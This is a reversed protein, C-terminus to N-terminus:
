GRLAIADVEILAGLPLASVGVTTRAPRHAGVFREYITNVRAFQALDTMFITVKVVDSPSLSAAGLVAAVNAFAREAQADLGEVLKGTSPDLGVQGATYVFGGAEIGQAYAAVPVPALPTAIPEVLQVKRM